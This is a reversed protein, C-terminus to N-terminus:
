QPNKPKKTQRSYNQKRARGRNPRSREVEQWELSSHVPRKGLTSVAQTPTSEFNRPISTSSDMEEVPNETQSADPSNEAETESFLGADSAITQPDEM